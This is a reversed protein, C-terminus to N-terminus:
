AINQGGGEKTKGVAPSSKRSAEIMSKTLLKIQNLLERQMGSDQVKEIDRTFKFIEEQREPKLTAKLKPLNKNFDEFLKSFDPKDVAVERLAKEISESIQTSIEAVEEPKVAFASSDLSDVVQKAVGPQHVAYIVQQANERDARVKPLENTIREKKLRISDARRKDEEPTFNGKGEKYEDEEQKVESELRTLEGEQIWSRQVVQEQEVVKARHDIGGSDGSATYTRLRERVAEREGFNKTKDDKPTDMITDLVRYLNGKTKEDVENSEAYNAIAKINEKLAKKTEPKFRGWQGTIAGVAVKLNEKGLEDLEADWGRKGTEADARQRFINQPVLERAIVQDEKKAFYAAATVALKRRTVEEKGKEDLGEWTDSNVRGQTHMEKVMEQDEKSKPDVKVWEAKGTDRNRSVRGYYHPDKNALGIAGLDEYIMAQREESENRFTSKIFEELAEPGEKIAGDKSFAKSLKPDLLVENVDHNAMMLELVGQAVAEQGKVAVPKGDKDYKIVGDLRNLMIDSEVGADSMRKKEANKYAGREIEAEFTKDKGLSLIRNFRDEMGGSVGMGKYFAEEKRKRSSDWSSKIISPRLSIPKEIGARRQLGISWKDMKRGAGLLPTKALWKGAGQLKGALNGALKGGVAGMQSALMLSTFLLGVVVIFNLLSEVRGFTSTFLVFREAQTAPITNQLIAEGGAVTMIKFSLWLFFALVPGSFLQKSVMSWIQSAFKDGGPIFPMVFLLPSLIIAMWLIIIRGVFYAILVVLVAAVIVLAIVGLLLSGFLPWVADGKASGINIGLSLIQEIGLSRLLNGAAVNEFAHVFTLTIVQSVDILMGMIMKSFNIVVAALILKPLLKKYSYAEMNFLTGIAIILIGAVIFMNALDRVVTWGITVAQQEIFNNYGAVWIMLPILALTVLKGFFYIPWYLLLSFVSFLPEDVLSIMWDLGVANAGKAGIILLLLVLFVVIKKRDFHKKIKNIDFIM